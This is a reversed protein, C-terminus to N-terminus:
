SNNDWLFSDNRLVKALKENFPMYFDRLIEKTGPLMPGLNKDAPRRTNSAPSRTIESEIEKSLPGLNLFDFVRHMTYKRNSAHDELRLVLIQERSFVTLWDMLYVIYVGVQLRVPMANNVTTNYVCSRMTYETLCGEFLQLSESVKEHFDEASKNAIGFYLYDSYLREVPDRLMVIFRADPQLAHVFDQILFPPEGETTNDYFYVWANNDWMTSASAEGVIINPQSPSGSANGTLNGQIQYAAQDFLDLYDEVPYRDHFGESLRIIGFRKRTWWHPEKFTTFKVDPHLRLRDYLDTTGCKPQGIIYFYPLCRMRYFKGDHHFLHERFVNRLHQFVTRFRRSYRAYLNTTYPDSTVNGTYEEYWCPNKVGSLFKRPVVSFMHPESNVLAKLDPLQRTSRFELKSTISKVVLKIHTYDKVSSLNFPLPGPSVLSSFHYPSPTLLLGKKDGTLIYSAMILFMVALGFLFSYLRIKRFCGLTSWRKPLERKVELIAFLNMPTDDVQLLLPRKRYDDVTSGLLSYKYDMQTM